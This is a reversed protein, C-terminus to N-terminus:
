SAKILLPSLRESLNKLEETFDDWKNGPLAKTQTFNGYIDYNTRTTYGEVDECCRLALKIERGITARLPIYIGSRNLKYLILKRGNRADEKLEILARYSIAKITEECSIFSDLSVVNHARLFDLVADAYYGINIRNVRM